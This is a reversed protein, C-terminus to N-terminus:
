TITRSKKSRRIAIIQSIVFLYTTWVGGLLTFICILLPLPAHPAWLARPYPDAVSAVIIGGPVTTEATAAGYQPTAAVDAVIKLNGASDGPLRDPFPAAATGDDLTTDKGLVLLGFTRRVSFTVVADAQPKGNVTVLANVVKKHEEEGVTIQIQPKPLDAAKAAFFPAFLVFFILIHLIRLNM